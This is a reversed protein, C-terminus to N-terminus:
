KHDEQSEPLHPLARRCNWTVNSGVLFTNDRWGVPFYAVDTM